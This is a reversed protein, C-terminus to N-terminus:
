DYIKVVENDSEEIMQDYYVRKSIFIWGWIFICWGFVYIAYIFGQMYNPYVKWTEILENYGTIGNIIANIFLITVILYMMVGVQNYGTKWQRKGHESIKM